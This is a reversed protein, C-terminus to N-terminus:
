MELVMRLIRATGLLAMKQVLGIGVEIGLKEIWGNFGKSVCGIAGVVVLLGRAKKLSWLRMLERELSRYKEIIRKSRRFTIEEM